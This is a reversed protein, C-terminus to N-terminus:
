RLEEKRNTESKILNELGYLIFVRNYVTKYGVTYIRLPKVKMILTVLLLMHNFLSVSSETTSGYYDTLIETAM